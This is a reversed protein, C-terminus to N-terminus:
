RVFMVGGGNPLEVFGQRKAVEWYTYKTTPQKLAHYGTTGSYNSKSDNSFCGGWYLISIVGVVIIIFAIPLWDIHSDKEEHSEQSRSHYLSQTSAMLLLEKVSYGDLASNKKEVEENTLTVNDTSIPVNSYRLPKNHIGYVGYGNASQLHYRFYVDHRRQEKQLSQSAKHVSYPLIAPNRLIGKALGQAHVPVILLSTCLALIINVIRKM